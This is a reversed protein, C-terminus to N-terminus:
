RVRSSATAARFAASSAMRGSNSRIASSDACSHLSMRFAAKSFARSAPRRGAPVQGATDFRGRCSYGVPATETVDLQAAHGGHGRRFRDQAARVHRRAGGAVDGAGGVRRRGHRVDHRGPPERRRIRVPVVPVRARGDPGACVPWPVGRLAPRRRETGGVPLRGGAGSHGGRAVGALGPGARGGGETPDWVDPYRGLMAVFDVFRDPLMYSAHAVYPRDGSGACWFAGVLPRDPVAPDGSQWSLDMAVPLGGAGVAGVACRMNGAFRGDRGLAFDHGDVPRFFLDALTRSRRAPEIGTADWTWLVDMGTGARYFETRDRCQSVSIKSHQFEVVLGGWAVDVRGAREGHRVVVGQADVPFRSQWDLHWETMHSERGVCDVGPKLGFHAFHPARRGTGFKVTLPRGCDPCVYKAGSSAQRIGVKRGAAKDFGVFM